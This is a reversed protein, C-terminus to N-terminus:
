KITSRVKTDFRVTVKGQPSGRLLALFGTFERIFGPLETLDDEVATFALQKWRWTQLNRDWQTWRGDMFVDLPVHFAGNANRVELRNLKFRSGDDESISRVQVWDPALYRRNEPVLSRLWSRTYSFFETTWESRLTSNHLIMLDVDRQLEKDAEVPRVDLGHYWDAGCSERFAGKSFSKKPNPLFGCFRLLSLLMDYCDTPIIIDDGYVAHKVVKGRITRMVARCASAYVLTQLPFCFGNGMSVFKEYVGANGELQYEPSRIRNLYDYAGSPLLYYVLARSITDSASSLDITAYQGTVSGERALRQNQSQDKLDYGWRRLRDRLILDVGKQLFTNATPEIAISRDTVATKPVFDVKNWATDSYRRSVEGMFDVMDLCPIPRDSISRLIYERYHSNRWLQRTFYGEALASGTWRDASLKRAFSTKAGHLGINSGSGFDCLGRGPNQLNVGEFFKHCFSRMEELLPFFRSRWLSSRRMFRRNTRRCKDEMKHFTDIATQRSSQELGFVTHPVPHKLVLAALQRGVFHSWASPYETDKLSVAWSYVRPWDDNRLYGEVAVRAESEAPLHHLTTLLVGKLIGLSDHRISVSPNMRIVPRRTRKASAAGNVAPSLQNPTRM